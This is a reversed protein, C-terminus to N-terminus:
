FGAGNGGGSAGGGSAGGGSAGGGSGGDNRGSDGWPAYDPSSAGPSTWHRTLRSGGAARALRSMRRLHLFFAAFCALVAVIVALLFLIANNMGQTHPSDPNGFCVSCARAIAPTGTVLCVSIAVISGVRGPRPASRTERL